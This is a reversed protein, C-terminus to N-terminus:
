QTQQTATQNKIQNLQMNSAAPPGQAARFCCQAETGYSLPPNSFDEKTVIVSERHEAYDLACPGQNTPPYAANSNDKWVCSYALDPSSAKSQCVNKSDNGVYARFGDTCVSDGMKKLADEDLVQRPMTTDNTTSTTTTTVKIPATKKVVKAPPITQTTVQQVQTTTDEGYTVPSLLLIGFFASIMSVTMKQNMM